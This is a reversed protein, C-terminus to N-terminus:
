LELTWVRMRARSRHLRQHIRCLAKLEMATVSASALISLKSEFEVYQSRLDRWNFSKHERRLVASSHRSHCHLVVLIVSLRNINFLNLTFCLVRARSHRKYQSVIHRNPFHLASGIRASSASHLDVRRIFSHRTVGFLQLNGNFDCRRHRRHWHRRRSRRDRLPERRHLTTIPFQLIIIQIFTITRKRHFLPESIAHQAISKQRTETERIKKHRQKRQVKKNLKIHDRNTQKSWFTHDMIKKRQTIEIDNLESDIQKMNLSTM